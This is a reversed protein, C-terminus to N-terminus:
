FHIGAKAPISLAPITLNFLGTVEPLSSFKDYIQKILGSSKTILALEDHTLTISTHEQLAGLWKRICVDKDRRKIAHFLRGGTNYFPLDLYAKLTVILNPLLVDEDKMTNLRAKIRERTIVPKTEQGSVNFFHQRWVAEQHEFHKIATQTDPNLDDLKKTMAYLRVVLSQFEANDLYFLKFNVETLLYEVYAFHHNDLALKLLTIETQADHETHDYPFTCGAPILMKFLDMDVVSKSVTAMVLAYPNNYWPIPIAATPTGSTWIKRLGQKACLKKVLEFHNNELATVLYSKKDNWKDFTILLNILEENPNKLQMCAQLASGYHFELYVDNEQLYRALKLALDQRDNNILTLLLYEINCISFSEYRSCKEFLYYIAPAHNIEVAKELFKAYNKADTTVDALSHDIYFNMAIVFLDFLDPDNNNKLKSLLDMALQWQEKKFLSSLLPKFLFSDPGLFVSLNHMERICDERRKKEARLLPSHQLLLANLTENTNPPMVFGYGDIPLCTLLDPRISMLKRLLDAHYSVTRLVDFLTQNSYQRLDIATLFFDAIDYIQDKNKDLLVLYFLSSNDCAPYTLLERALAKFLPFNKRFTEKHALLQYIIGERITQTLTALISTLKLTGFPGAVIVPCHLLIPTSTILDYTKQYIDADFKISIAALYKGLRMIKESFIDWFSLGFLDFQAYEKAGKKTQKTLHIDENLYHTILKALESPLFVPLAKEDFHKKPLTFLSAYPINQKPPELNQPPSVDSKKEQELTNLDVNLLQNIATQNLGEQSEELKKRAATHLEDNVENSLIQFRLHKPVPLKAWTLAKNILEPRQTLEEKSLQGLSVEILQNNQNVHWQNNLMFCAKYDNPDNLDPYIIIGSHHNPYLRKLPLSRPSQHKELLHLFYAKDQKIIM